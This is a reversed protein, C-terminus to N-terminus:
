FPNEVYKEMYEKSPEGALCHVAYLINHGHKIRKGDVKIIRSKAYEYINSVEKNNKTEATINRCMQPTIDEVHKKLSEFMGREESTLENESLPEIGTANCNCCLSEWMNRDPMFGVVGRGHCQCCKEAM